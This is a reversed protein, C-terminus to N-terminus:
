KGIESEKAADPLYHFRTIGLSNKYTSHRFSQAEVQIRVTENLPFSKEGGGLTASALDFVAGGDDNTVIAQLRVTDNDLVSDAAEKRTFLLEASGTVEFNGLNMTQAGARGVVKDASLNNTITLDLSKFYTSADAWASTGTNFAETKLRIFDSTTNVAATFKREDLRSVGFVPNREAVGVIKDAKQGVMQIQSTAKESLPFTITWSNPSAGTIYEYGDLPPKEQILGGYLAEFLYSHQIGFDAAEFGFGDKPGFNTTYSGFFLRIPAPSAIAASFGELTITGDSKGTVKYFKKAAGFNTTRPMDNGDVGGDVYVWSGLPIEHQALLTNPTFTIKGSAASATGSVGVIALRGSDSSVGGIGTVSVTDATSAANTTKLGNQTDTSFGSAFVLTNTPYAKGGSVTYGGAKIGTVAYTPNKWKSLMFAPAFDDIESMTLDSTIDVAADFDTVAGKLRQREPSIPSRAVTTITGGFGGIDNPEMRSARTADAIAGGFESERAFAIQTENTQAM